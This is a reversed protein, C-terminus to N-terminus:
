KGWGFLNEFINGGGGQNKTVPPSAAAAAEQREGVTVFLEAARSFEEFSIQGDKDIDMEQLM